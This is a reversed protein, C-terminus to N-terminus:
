NNNDLENEFQEAQQRQKEKEKKLHKIEKELYSKNWKYVILYHAFVCIGWTLTIFLFFKLAATSLDEYKSGKFIFIWVLWFLVCVMLYIAGHIKFGIRKKAKNRIQKEEELSFIEQEM